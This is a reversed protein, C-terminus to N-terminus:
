AQEKIVFDINNFYINNPPPICINNNVHFQSIISFPSTIFMACFVYFLAFM